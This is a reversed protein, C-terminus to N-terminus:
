ATDMSVTREPGHFAQRLFILPLDAFRVTGGDQLTTPADIREEDVITGNKSDLDEIVARDEGITIRAHHRSVRDSLLTIRADGGRGILNEGDLLFAAWRKGVLQFRAGEMALIADDVEIEGVRGLMRYGRRPITQLFRPAAAGDGLADRLENVCHVITNDAVFGSSWVEDVLDRKSVVEGSRGALVTLVEMVRPRLTVIVQDRIMRGLRPEVRWEELQFGNEILTAQTM